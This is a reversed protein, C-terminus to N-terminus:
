RIGGSWGNGAVTSSQTAAGDLSSFWRRATALM